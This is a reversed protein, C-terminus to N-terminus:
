ISRTTKNIKVIRKKRYLNVFDIWSTCDKGLVKNLKLLQETAWLSALVATLGYYQFDAYIILATNFLLTFAFGAIIRKFTNLELNRVEKNKINSMLINDKKIYHIPLFDNGTFDRQKM